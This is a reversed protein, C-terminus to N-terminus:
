RLQYSLPVSLRISKSPKPFQPATKKILSRADEDLLEFGSSQIVEVDEVSGDQELRFSIRVEGQMKLRQANKPYHLNKVLLARIEGLHANLFEKEVNVEPKTPAAVPSKSIEASTSPQTPPILPAPTRQPAQVTPIPRSSVPPKTASVPVIPAPPLTPLPKPKVPEAPLAQQSPPQVAVTESSASLSSLTIKITHKATEQPHRSLWLVAGAVVFVHILLSYGLPRWQLAM